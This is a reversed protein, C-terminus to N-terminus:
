ASAGVAARGRSPPIEKRCRKPEVSLWWALSCAHAVSPTKLDRLRKERSDQLTSPGKDGSVAASPAPIPAPNGAVGTVAAWEEARVAHYHKSRLRATNGIWANIAKEPIGRRELDDSCSGRMNVFLKPWTGRRSGPTKGISIRPRSMSSTKETPPSFRVDGQFIKPLSPPHYYEGCALVKNQDRM